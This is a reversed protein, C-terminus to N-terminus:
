FTIANGLFEVSQNLMELFGKVGTATKQKVKLGNTWREEKADM